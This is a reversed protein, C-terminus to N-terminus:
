RRRGALLVLAGLGLLAATAPEPIPNQMLTFTFPVSDPVTMRFELTVVEGPPVEEPARFEITWADPYLVTRFDTSQGSGEVFTTEGEPDLGLIYGTWVFGTENTLTTTITLQSNSGAAPSFDMGFLEPFSEPVTVETESYAVGVDVLDAQSVCSFFAVAGVFAVVVMSKKM